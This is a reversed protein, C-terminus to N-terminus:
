HLLFVGLTVLVAALLKRWLNNREKLFIIALFVTVITSAQRITGVQATNGGYTLATLYLIGQATSFIGLPLMRKLFSPQVFQRWQQLAKPAFALIIFGTLFNQFTNYAIANYHQVNASDVVLALGAFFAAIFVYVVGRNLKFVNKLSVVLLTSALIIVTGFIKKGSFVEDLFIVSAIITFVVNLSSLITKESAEILQLSKFLFISCAGWLGSALLLLFFNGSRLSFHSGYLIAFGLNLFGLFLHFVIAYSYPNSKEDKMLVRQLISAISAFLVSLLTLFLWNM